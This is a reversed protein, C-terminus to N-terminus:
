IRAGVTLITINIVANVAMVTRTHLIAGTRVGKALEVLVLMRWAGLEFGLLNKLLCKM